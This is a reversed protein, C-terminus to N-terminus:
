IVHLEGTIAVQPQRHLGQSGAVHNAGIFISSITPGGKDARFERHNAGLIAGLDGNRRLYRHSAM